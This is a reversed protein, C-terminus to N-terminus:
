SARGEDGGTISRRYEAPTKATWRKFARHFATVDLFGLLFAVEGIAIRRDQLYHLARDRRLDSLVEAFSTGEGQLRRQLSRASMRLKGAITAVLPEREPLEDMMSRTVVDRFRRSEPLGSLLAGLQHDLLALLRQEAHRQPRDLLARDLVLENRACGYHVPARFVREQESVRDPRAHAFCVERPALDDGIALRAHLITLALLGEVPQRPGIQEPTHGHVLRAVDGDDELELSLHIGEHVLRIYRGALRFHEGLTPSSRVAFALVDFHDLPFRAVWEALHLGFDQDGTLRVAEDWLRMEQAQLLYDDPDALEAPDLGTARLLDPPPVGANAAFGVIALITKIPCDQSM